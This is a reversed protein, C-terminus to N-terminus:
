ECYNSFESVIIVSCSPPSWVLSTMLAGGVETVRVDGTVRDIQLKYREGTITHHQVNSRLQLSSM